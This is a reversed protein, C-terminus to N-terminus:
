DIINLVDFRVKKCLDSGPEFRRCVPPRIDYISCKVSQGVIGELGVCRKTGEVSKMSLGRPELPSPKLYIKLRKDIDKVEKERVPINHWYACCAGCKMCDYKNENM